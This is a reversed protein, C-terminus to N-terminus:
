RVYHVYMLEGNVWEEESNAGMREKCGWRTRAGQEGLYVCAEVDAQSAEVPGTYCVEDLTQTKADWEM